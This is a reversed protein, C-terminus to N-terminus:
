RVPEQEEEDLSLVRQETFPTPQNLIDEEIDEEEEETM